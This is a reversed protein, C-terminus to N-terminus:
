QGPAALGRPERHRVLDERAVAGQLVRFLCREEAREGVIEPGVGLTHLIRDLTPARLAVFSRRALDVVGGLRAPLLQKAAEIPRGAARRRQDDHAGIKEFAHTLVAPEGDDVAIELM